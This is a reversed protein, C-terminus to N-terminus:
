RADHEARKPSRAQATQPARGDKHLVGEHDKWGWQALVFVPKNPLSTDWAGLAAIRLAPQHADPTGTEAPTAKPDSRKAFAANCREEFLKQVYAGAGEVFAKRREADVIDVTFATVKGTADNTHIAGVRHALPKANQDFTLDITAAKLPGLSEFAADPHHAPLRAM